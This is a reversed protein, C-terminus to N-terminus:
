ILELHPKRLGVHHSINLSESIFKGGPNLTSVAVQNSNPRLQLEAIQM